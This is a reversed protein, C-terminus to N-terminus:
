RLFSFHTFVFLVVATAAAVIYGISVVAAVIGGTVAATSATDKVAERVVGQKDDRDDDKENQKEAAAVVASYLCFVFLSTLAKKNHRPSLISRPTGSM